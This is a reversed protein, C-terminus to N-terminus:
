QRVGWVHGGGDGSNSRSAGVGREWTAPWRHHRCYSYYDNRNRDSSSSNHQVMYHGAGAGAGAASEKDGDASLHSSENKGGSGGSHAAVVGGVASNASLSGSTHSNYHHMSSHHTMAHAAAAGGAVNNGDSNSNTNNVRGVASQAHLHVMNRLCRSFACDQLQLARCRGVETSLLLLGELRIQMTIAATDFFRTETRFNTVRLRDTTTGFYRMASRYIAQVFARKAEAYCKNMWRTVMASNRVLPYHTSTSGNSHPPPMSYYYSSGGRMAGRYTAGTTTVGGM